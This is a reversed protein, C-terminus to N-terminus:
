CDYVLVGGGSDIIANSQDHKDVNNKNKPKKKSETNEDNSISNCDNAIYKKALLLGANTPSSFAVCDRSFVCGFVINSRAVDLLRTAIGTKRHSAHVWIQHVGMYSSSVNTSTITKAAQINTKRYKNTNLPPTNKNWKRVFPKDSRRICNSGVGSQESSTNPLLQYVTSIIEVTVFGVIRKRRIYLFATKNNLLNSRHAKAKNTSNVNSGDNDDVPIQINPNQPQVFGMENDIITKAQLVKAVHHHPDTSRTEVIRDFDDDDDELYSQSRERRRKNKLSDRYVVRENTTKWGHFPVGLTYLKCVREHNKIDEKVGHVYLMDCTDCIIHEGFNSQGFDFFLEEKTRKNSANNDNENAYRQLLPRKNRPFSSPSMITKQIVVAVSQNKGCGIGKDNEGFTNGNTKSSNCSRTNTTTATLLQNFLDATTTDKKMEVLPQPSLDSKDKQNTRKSDLGDNDVGGCNSTLNQQECFAVLDSDPIYYEDFVINSDSSSSTTTLHV